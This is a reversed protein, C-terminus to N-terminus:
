TPPHLLLIYAYIQAYPTRVYFRNIAHSRINEYRSYPSQPRALIACPITEYSLTKNYKHNVKNLYKSEM